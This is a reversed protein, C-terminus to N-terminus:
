KPVLKYGMRSAVFDLNTKRMNPTSKDLAFVLLYLARIDPDTVPKKGTNIEIRM